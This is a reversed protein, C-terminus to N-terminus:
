GTVGTGRLAIHKCLLINFLINKSYSTDECKYSIDVTKHFCLFWQYYESVLAIGTCM